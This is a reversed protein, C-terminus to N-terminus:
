SPVIVTRLTAINVAFVVPNFHGCTCTVATEPNMSCASLKILSNGLCLKNNDDMLGRVIGGLKLSSACVSTQLGVFMLEYAAVQQSNDVSCFCIQQKSWM